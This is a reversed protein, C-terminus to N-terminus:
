TRPFALPHGGGRPLSSFFFGGRRFFGSRVLGVREGRRILPFATGIWAALLLLPTEPRFLTGIGVVFGLRAAWHRFGNRPEWPQRKAPFSRFLTTYPFLTSRPPRRIM